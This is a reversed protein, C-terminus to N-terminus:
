KGGGPMQMYNKITQVTEVYGYCVTAHYGRDNLADLFRKQKGESDLKGTESKLEIFLGAFGGRQEFIMLDPCGARYGMRKMKGATGISTRMGGASATWLADPYESRIWLAVAVQIHYENQAM